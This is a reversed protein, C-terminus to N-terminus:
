SANNANFFFFDKELLNQLSPFLSAAANGRMVRTGDVLERPYRALPLPLPFPPLLIHGGEGFGLVRSHRKGVGIGEEGARGLEGKGRERERGMEGEEAAAGGRLSGVGGGRGVPEVGPPRLFGVPPGGGPVGADPHVGLLLALVAAALLLLPPPPGAVPLAVQDVIGIGKGEGHGIGVGGGGRRFLDIAAETTIGINLNTTM